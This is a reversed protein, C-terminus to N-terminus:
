QPPAKDRRLVAVVLGILLLAAAAAIVLTQPKANKLANTLKALLGAAPRKDTSASDVAALEGIQSKLEALESAPLDTLKITHIGGTHRILINFNTQRHVWVNTFSLEGVKLLEFQREAAGGGPQAQSTVTLLLLIAALAPGHRFAKM